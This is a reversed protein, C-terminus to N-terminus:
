RALYLRTGDRSTKFLYRVGSVISKTTAACTLEPSERILAKWEGMCQDYLPQMISATLHPVGTQIAPAWRWRYCEAAARVTSPVAVPSSRKTQVRKNCNRLLTYPLTLPRQALRVDRRMMRWWLYHGGGDTFNIFQDSGDRCITLDNVLDFYEHALRRPVLAIHDNACTTDCSGRSRQLLLCVVGAHHHHPM